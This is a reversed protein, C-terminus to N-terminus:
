QALTRFFCAPQSPIAPATAQLFGNTDATINTWTVWNVIDTSTQFGYTRGVEGTASIFWGASGVVSNTGSSAVPAFSLVVPLPLITLTGPSVTMNYNSLVGYTDTVAATIPYSGSFTAATVASTFTVSLLDSPALGYMSGTFIPDPAGYARTQNDASITLSAPSVVLTGSASGFYIPDAVQAAVQYSGAETPPTPGGDYTVNVTLGDPVTTATVPEPWGDYVQNLNALSVTASLFPPGTHVVVGPLLISTFAGGAAAGFGDAIGGSGLGLPPAVSIGATDDGVQITYRFILMATGSGSLYGAQHNSSALAVMLYPATGLANVNVPNNFTVTFDLNQGITYVGASPGAISVIYPPVDPTVMLTLNTALTDGDGNDAEVRVSYYGPAMLAPNVAYLTTGTVRFLSNNVSGVGSVLSFAPSQVAGPDTVALTGVAAGPGAGQNISPASINLGSLPGPILFSVEGALPSEIGSEDYATVNFYYRKGVSLDDATAYLNTGADIQGFYEGSATGYYLLYGAIGPSPSPNWGLTLSAAMGTRVCCLVAVAVIGCCFLNRM